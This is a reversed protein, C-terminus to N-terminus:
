VAKVELVDWFIDEEELDNESSISHGVRQLAKLFHRYTTEGKARAFEIVSKEETFGTDECKIRVPLFPDAGLELVFTITELGGGEIAVHLITWGNFDIYHVFDLPMDKAIRRVADINNTSAAEFIPTWGVDGDTLMPSAGLQLLAHVDAGTGWSAARHLVTSGFRDQVDFDTFSYCTLLEFFQPPVEPFDPQFLLMAPTWGRYCLYDLSAGQELFFRATEIQRARFAWELPSTEFKGFTTNVDAGHYCLFKVLALSGSEIAYRLPTSNSLTVDYPSAKRSSFLARVTQVDGQQCAKMLESGERVVSRVSLGGRLISFGLNALPLARLGLNFYIAKSGLLRWLQFKSSLFLTNHLDNGYTTFLVQIGLWAFLPNDASCWSGYFKNQFQPDRDFLSSLTRRPLSLGDYVEQKANMSGKYQGLMSLKHSERMSSAVKFSLSSLRINLLLLVNTLSAEIHSLGSLLEQTQPKDKLAWQLRAKHSYTQPKLKDFHSCLELILENASLLARELLRIEIPLLLLEDSKIAQREFECLLSLECQLVDLQQALRSFEKPANHVDRVLQAVARFSKVAIETLSAISAVAGVAEM